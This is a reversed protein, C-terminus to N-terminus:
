LGRDGGKKDIRIARKGGPALTLEPIRRFDMGFMQFGDVDGGRGVHFITFARALDESEARFADFYRHGLRTKFSSWSLFLSDGELTITATGYAPEHYVGAYAGLNTSPKGGELEKSDQVRANAADEAEEKLAAALYRKNWDVPKLGLVIEVIGDRLAEPVNLQGLNTLVAIGIKDEPLLTVNSRFGDIAGAHSLVQHGRYDNIFWGMGYNIQTMRDTLMRLHESLRIPTQRTYTERLADRSVLRAGEFVGGNLHLRMWRGLDRVSSNIGGAPAINDMNRWAIPVTTGDAQRQHPTAHDQSAAAVATSTDTDTMGLPVFIRRWVFEDWSTGAAHALAEGAALFMINQYQYASRFPRTLPVKGIRRIIEERSWPAGYWLLDHRSLGTRHSLIDRLTVERDAM